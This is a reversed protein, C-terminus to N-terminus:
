PPLSFLGRGHKAQLLGLVVVVWGVLEAFDSSVDNFDVHSLASDIVFDRIRESAKDPLEVSRPM